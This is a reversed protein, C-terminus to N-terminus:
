EELKYDMRPVYFYCGPYKASLKKIDTEKSYCLEMNDKSIETPLEYRLYACDYDGYNYAILKACGYQRELQQLNQVEIRIKAREPAMEYAPVRNFIFQGASFLILLSFIITVAFYKQLVRSINKFDTALIIALNFLLITM